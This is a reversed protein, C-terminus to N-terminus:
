EVRLILRLGVMWWGGTLGGTVTLGGHAITMGGDPGEGGRITLSGYNMNVNGRGDLRFITRSEDTIRIFDFATTGMGTTSLKLVNGAFAPNTTQISLIDANVTTTVARMGYFYTDCNTNTFDPFCSCIGTALNCTGRNSCYAYATCFCFYILIISQLM